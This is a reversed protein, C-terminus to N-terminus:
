EAAESSGGGGAAGGGGGGGGGGGAALATSFSEQCRQAWESPPFAGCPEEVLEFLGASCLYMNPGYHNDKVMTIERTSIKCHAFERPYNKGYVRLGSSGSPHGIFLIGFKRSLLLYSDAM